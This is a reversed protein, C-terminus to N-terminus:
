LSLEDILLGKQGQLNGSNIGLVRVSYSVVVQVELELTESLRITEMPVQMCTM